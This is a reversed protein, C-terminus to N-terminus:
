IRFRAKMWYKIREWITLVHRETTECVKGTEPEAVPLKQRQALAAKHGIYTYGVIVKVAYRACACVAQEHYGPTFTRSGDSNARYNNQFLRLHHTGPVAELLWTDERCRIKLRGSGITETQMGEHVYIRRLLQSPMGMESFLTEYNSSRFLDRTGLRLYAKMWCLSCQPLHNLYTNSWRLDQDSIDRAQPCTKDHVEGGSGSYFYLIREDSM